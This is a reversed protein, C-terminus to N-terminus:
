KMEDEWGDQLPPTTVGDSVQPCQPEPLSPDGAGLPLALVWCGPEIPGLSLQTAELFAWLPALKVCQPTRAFNGIRVIAKGAKHHALLPGLETWM